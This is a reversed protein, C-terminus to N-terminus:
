AADRRPAATLLTAIQSDRVDARAQAAEAATKWDDARRREADVADKHLKYVIWAATTLGGGALWPAIAQWM